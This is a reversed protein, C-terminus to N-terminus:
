VGPQRIGPLVTRAQEVDMPSVDAESAFVMLLSQDALLYDLVALLTQRDDAKARLDDLQIGTLTLFRSFREEEGALFALAKLSLSDAQDVTLTQKAM